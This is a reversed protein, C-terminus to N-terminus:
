TLAQHAATVCNLLVADDLAASGDKKIDALFEINGQPGTIPSFDIGTLAWGQKSVFDRIDSLVSLHVAGDRVVGKKGVQARGAEFQPKVLTIFRGKEGMIAMANPLILRISIFSVDMVTLSPRAEFQEAKLYRANTKEMVVVRPDVRLRYELQGYGVDIAYVRSAGHRLLVDTFGGSAAGIDMCVLGSVDAGFSVLAKDLKHAGRSAWAMDQGRVHLHDNPHIPKSAKDVRVEDVYVLGAMILAQAKERSPALGRHLLALDAREKM